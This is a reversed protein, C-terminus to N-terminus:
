LSAIDLPIPLYAGVENRQYLRVYEKSGVVTIADSIATMARRWQENDISYRRLSLIRGVNVQGQSDVAFAANVITKLESGSNETWVTLCESILAKAAQLEPGFTIADSIAVLLKYKGDFTFLTVNGKMGNKKGKKVHYKEAILDLLANFDAFLQEKFERMQQQLALWEAAAGSVFQDIVLDSERITKVPVLAGKANERFGEPIQTAEIM